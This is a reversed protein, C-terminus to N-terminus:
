SLDGAIDILADIDLLHVVANHAAIVGREEFSRLQRSLSEPSTQLLAAIDKKPLPLQVTVGAGGGADDANTTPLSLLYDALREPVSAGVVALQREASALRHSLAAMFRASISPHQKLLEGLDEHSFVCMASDELAVASNHLRAGTLFAYEGLFDGSELIRVVREVGSPLTRTVKVRGRHVVMLQSLREGSMFAYEGKAVKQPHALSAVRDQESSTLGQFIPVRSVCTTHTPFLPLERM